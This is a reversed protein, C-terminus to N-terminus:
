LTAFFAMSLAAAAAAAWSVGGGRISTAANKKCVGVVLYYDDECVCVGGKCVKHAGRCNECAEEISRQPKEGYTYQCFPGYRDFAQDCLCEAARGDARLQCKGFGWCLKQNPLNEPETWGPCEFECAPGVYGVDCICVTSNLVQCTGHNSCINGPGGPCEGSCDDGFFGENCDCAFKDVGPRRVCVGQEWLTRTSCVTETSFRTTGPCLKWRHYVGYVMSRFAGNTLAGRGRQVGVADLVATPDAADTNDFTFAAFLRAASAAGTDVVRHMRARVNTQPARWVLLDNIEGGFAMGARLQMAASGFSRLAGTAGCPALAQPHGDALNVGNLYFSLECQAGTKSIGFSLHFWEDVPTAYNEFVHPAGGDAYEIRLGYGTGGTEFLLFDSTATSLATTPQYGPAVLALLVGTRSQIVADRRVWMEMHWSNALPMQEHPLTAYSYPSGSFEVAADVARVRVALFSSSVICNATGRWTLRNAGDVLLGLAAESLALSVAEKTATPPAPAVLANVGNVFLEVTCSGGEIVAEMSADIVRRGDLQVDYEGTQMSGSLKIPLAEFSNITARTVRVDSSVFREDRCEAPAKKGGRGAVIPCRDPLEGRLLHVEDYVHDGRGLDFLAYFRLPRHHEAIVEDRVGAVELDTFRPTAEGDDANKHMLALQDVAGVFNRAVRVASPALALEAFAGDFSGAREAKAGVGGGAGAGLAWSRVLMRRAHHEVTGSAYHWQGAVAALPSEVCSASGDAGACFAVAGGPGLRLAGFRWEVLQVPAAPLASPKFWLGAFSAGGAPALAALEEAGTQNAAFEIGFQLASGIELSLGSGNADLQECQEGKFGLRCLCRPQGDRPDQWCDGRRSCPAKRDDTSAPCKLQCTPGVANAFCQCKADTGDFVCRGYAGCVQDDIVPCTKSCDAGFFDPDCTCQGSLDCTGHGSCPTARGGPCESLCNWGFSGANCRCSSQRPGGPTCEVGPNPEAPWACQAPCEIDCGAGDFGILCECQGFRFNCFANFCSETCEQCCSTELIPLDFEAGKWRFIEIDADGVYFVKLKLKVQGGLARTAVSLRSCGRYTNSNLAGLAPFSLSILNLTGEVQIGLVDAGQYQVVPATVSAVVDVKGIPEVLGNLALGGKQDSILFGYHVNLGVSGLGRVTFLADLWAERIRFDFKFFEAGAFQHHTIEGAPPYNAECTSAIGTTCNREANAKVYYANLLYDFYLELEFTTCNGGTEGYRSRYKYGGAAYAQLIPLEASFINASVLGGAFFKYEAGYDETNSIPAARFDMLAELYAYFKDSGITNNWLRRNGQEPETNPRRNRYNYPSCAGWPRCKNATFFDRIVASVNVNMRGQETGFVDANPPRFTLNRLMPDNMDIVRSEDQPDIQRKRAAAAAAVNLERARVRETARRVDGYLAHLWLEDADVAHTPVAGGLEAVSAPHMADLRLAASELASPVLPVLSLGRQRLITAADMWWHPEIDKLSNHLAMAYQEVHLEAADAAPAPARMFESHLQRRWAECRARAATQAGRAAEIAAPEADADTTAYVVAADAAAEHQYVLAGFTLVAQRRVHIDTAASAYLRAVREITPASPARFLPLAMLARNRLEWSDAEDLAYALVAAEADPTDLSALVNYAVAQASAGLEGGGILERLLAVVDHQSAAARLQTLLAATPDNVLNGTAADRETADFYQLHLLVDARLQEADVAAPPSEHLVHRKVRTLSSLDSDAAHRRREASSSLLTVRMTSSSSLAFDYGQHQQPHLQEGLERPVGGDDAPYRTRSTEHMEVLVGDRYVTTRKQASAVREHTRRLARHMVPALRVDDHVASVTVDGAGAGPAVAHTYVVRKRGLHDRELQEYAVGPAHEHQLSAAFASVLQKKLNVASADDASDFLVHEIAASDCRQEFWVAHARLSDGFLRDVLAQDVAGDNVHRWQRPDRVSGSLVDLRFLATGDDDNLSLPTLDATM